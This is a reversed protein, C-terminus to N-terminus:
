REAHLADSRPGASVPKPKAVPKFPLTFCFTSGVGPQSEVWIRGAHREVIKKCVSLGMGTGPYEEKTHLRQFIDFIKEAFEPKIGIGNDKVKFSWFGYEKGCSVHVRPVKDDYYKLANSILNQLLQGMEVEDAEIVPLKDHTVVAAKERIAERLRELTKALVENSDVKAFKRGQTTTVRAYALLDGFLTHMRKAGDLTNDIFEQAAEDLKPGYQKALLHTSTTVVRLPEQLDRALAYAFQDLEHNSRDLEAAQNALKQNVIELKLAQERSQEQLRTNELAIGVGSAMQQLVELENSFNRPPRSLVRLVGVVEGGEGRAYLPVGVYGKIDRRDLQVPGPQASKQSLDELLLPKRNKFIWESDRAMNGKRTSLAEAGVGASGMAQLQEKEWVEFEVVDAGLVVRVKEQLKKILEVFDLQVTDQALEGVLKQVQERRKLEWSARLLSKRFFFLVVLAFVGSLVLALMTFQVQRRVPALVAQSIVYVEVAGVTAGGISIPVYVDLFDRTATLIPSQSDQDRREFFPLGEKFIRTLDSRGPSRKGALLQLDSFIIRRDRSWVAVRAVEAANLDQVFSRLQRQAQPTLPARFDESRLFRAASRLVASQQRAFAEELLATEIFHKSFFAAAFIAFALGLGVTFVSKYLLSLSTTDKEEGPYCGTVWFSRGARSLRRRGSARHPINRRM